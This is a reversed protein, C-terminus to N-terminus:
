FLFIKFCLFLYILVHWKLTPINFAEFEL